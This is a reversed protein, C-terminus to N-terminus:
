WELPYKHTSIRKGDMFDLDMPEIPINFYHKYAEAFDISSGGKFKIRPKNTIKSIGYDKIYFNHGIYRLTYAEVSVKIGFYDAIDIMLNSINKDTFSYYTNERVIIEDTTFVVIDEPNFHLDNILYELVKETLLREQLQMRGNDLKGFICQRINKSNTYYHIVDSNVGTNELYTEVMDEYDRSNLVIEPSYYRLAQYNAHHLDISLFKKDANNQNYINSSKCYNVGCVDRRVPFATLIDVSIFDKYADTNKIAEILADTTNNGFDLFQEETEFGAVAKEFNEWKRKTDLINDYLNIYYHIHPNDAVQIPLSYDKVFRKLTASKYEM